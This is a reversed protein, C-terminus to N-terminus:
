SLWKTVIRETISSEPLELISQLIKLEIKIGEAQTFSSINNLLDIRNPPTEPINLLNHSWFDSLYFTLQNHRFVRLEM